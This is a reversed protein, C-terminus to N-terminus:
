DPIEGSKKADRIAATTLAGALCKDSCYNRHDHKWWSRDRHIPTRCHSCQIM